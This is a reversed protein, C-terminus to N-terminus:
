QIILAKRSKSPRGRKRKQGLPVVKAEQPVTVHKLRIQLGLAHKCQLHKLFCSCTCKAKEGHVSITYIKSRIFDDFTDWTRGKYAVVLEKTIKTTSEMSCVYFLEYESSRVDDELSLVPVNLLAWQYADTWHRLTTPPTKHFPVHNVSTPARLESWKRM